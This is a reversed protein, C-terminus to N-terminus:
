GIYLRRVGITACLSTENMIMGHYPVKSLFLFFVIKNALIWKPQMELNNEM